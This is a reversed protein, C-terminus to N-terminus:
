SGTEEPVPGLDAPAMRHVMHTDSTARPGWPWEWRSRVAPRPASSWSPRRVEGELAEAFDIDVAEAAMWGTPPIAEAPHSVRQHRELKRALWSVVRPRLDSLVNFCDHAGRPYYILERECCADEFIRWAETGPTILDNGGGAVLLPRRLRPLM